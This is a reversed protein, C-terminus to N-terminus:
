HVDELARTFRFQIAAIIGTLVFLLVAIASAFGFQSGNPGFALRITYSILIDTAGAQPNDPTFPGGETLLFILNFNNFNFAFTAVLLPATTVLVLPLTITRLSFWGSAGDMTAAEKLDAPIAQLAGTAVIFMYPFGLWLNTILIAVKAATADGLWPVDLGTLDNILGFDRNWFSSWILIMIFGPVAYPLILVSRYLRQGRVRPDNMTVALLLGVAFTLLVSLTAFVVTWIFIRIFDGSIRDDTLAREYNAFGVNAKWSQSSLRSGDPAVFYERDGQQEVSYVVGTDTDTITGADEDYELPSSGEFAQRIGLQRIAGDDTPVAFDALASGAENVEVPTLLEYGDAQTVFGGDVTADDLEELGDETGVFVDEDVPDVLLFAFPGDTKSGTTAVTLNYRPADPTQVVSAGIIQAVTQEQTTRTGDGFNTFSTQMTSIAPYVVLTILLLTGPLLYKAPLGRKTAYTAVIAVVILLLAVLFGWRGQSLLTPLLAFALGIVTGLLVLKVLLVSTSTPGSHPQAEAIDQQPEPALTQVM